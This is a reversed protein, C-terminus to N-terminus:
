NSHRDHAICGCISMSTLSGHSISIHTKTMSGHSISIHTQGAPVRGNAFRIGPSLCSLHKSHRLGYQPFMPAADSEPYWGFEGLVVACGAESQVLFLAWFRFLLSVAVTGVSSVSALCFCLSSPHWASVSAFCVLDASSAYSAYWGRLQHTCGIAVCCPYTLM